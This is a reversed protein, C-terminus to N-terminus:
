GDAEGSKLRQSPPNTFKKFQWATEPYSLYYVKNFGHPDCIMDNALRAKGSNFIRNSVLLLRVDSIKEKYKSLKKAKEVIFREIFDKDINRVWGVKDSIYNWRKYEGLHDPLRLIYIECGRYPEIRKQESESLQGVESIITNLLQNHHRIDGLFDVMISSRTKKYYDKALKNIKQLNNQENAKKTSGRSSEDLYIERVELGFRESETTVILDPWGVEGPSPEVKWSEHLLESTKEAYIKEDDKQHKTTM